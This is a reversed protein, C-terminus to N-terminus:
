RAPWGTASWCAWVSWPWASRRWDPGSRPCGRTLRDDDLFVRVVATGGPAGQVSVLIERGGPVAATVSRGLFSLEVATSRSAPAGIVQGDPLFVTVPHSTQETTLRLTETDVAGVAVAVSEAESEAESVAGSVAVTRVLLALPVMLAILVLSTTAAVLLTLWRRM